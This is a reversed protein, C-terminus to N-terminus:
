IYGFRRRLMWETGLLVVLALLYYWRDWLPQDRSHGVEVLPPDTLPVEPFWSMPLRFARGGTAKAIQEMLEPRVSADALESGVARVAVVDEAQGLDREGLKASAILKYAGPSPPAFELRGM